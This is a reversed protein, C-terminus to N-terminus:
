KKKVETKGTKREESLPLIEEERMMRKKLHYENYIVGVLFCIMLLYLWLLFVVIASVAGYLRSMDGFRLWFSFGFSAAGWLFTTLLSGALMNKVPVKYPALYLNFVLCVLFAFLALMVYGGIEAPLAPLFRRLLWVGGLFLALFLFVAIMTALTLLVASVRLRWGKRRRSCEYVIEGSRRLHYFFNSASYFSTVALVITASKQASQANEELFLLLDRVQSFVELSIIERYGDPIKGFLLTVLFTFPVVSMLLFFVLTGAVTTYKKESLVAYAERVKSFARKIKKM